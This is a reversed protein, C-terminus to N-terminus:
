ADGDEVNDFTVFWESPHLHALSLLETASEDSEIGDLAMDWLMEVDHDQGLYEYTTRVAAPIDASVHPERRLLEPVLNHHAVDEEAVQGLRDVAIALILEDAVCTPLLGTHGLRLGRAVRKISAKMRGPFDTSDHWFRACRPLMQWAHEDVEDGFNIDGLWDLEIALLYCALPSFSDPRGVNPLGIWLRWWDDAQENSIGNPRM